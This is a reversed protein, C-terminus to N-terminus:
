AHRIGWKTAWSAYRMGAFAPVWRCTRENGYEKKRRKKEFVSLQFRIVSFKRALM